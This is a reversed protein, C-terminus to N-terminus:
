RARDREDREKFYSMVGEIQKTQHEQSVTVRIIDERLSIVNQIALENKLVMEKIDKREQTAVGIAVQIAALITFAVGIGSVITLVNGVSISRDFMVKKAM